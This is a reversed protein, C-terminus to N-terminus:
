ILDRFLDSEFPLLRFKNEWMRSKLTTQWFSTPKKQTHNKTKQPKKPTWGSPQPFPLDAQLVEQFKLSEM